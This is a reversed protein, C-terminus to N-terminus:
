EKSRSWHFVSGKRRLGLNSLSFQTFRNNDSCSRSNLNVQKNSSPSELPEM